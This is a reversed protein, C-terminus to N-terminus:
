TSSREIPARYIDAPVPRNVEGLKKYREWAPLKENLRAFDERPAGGESSRALHRKMASTRFAGYICRGALRRLPTREHIVLLRESAHRWDAASLQTERLFQAGCALRLENEIALPYARKLRELAQEDLGAEGLLCNDKLLRRIEYDELPELLRADAAQAFADEFLEAFNEATVLSVTSSSDAARVAEILDAVTAEPKHIKPNGPLFRFHAGKLISSAVVPAHDPRFWLVDSWTGLEDMENVVGLLGSVPHRLAFLRGDPVEDVYYGGLEEFGADRFAAVRQLSRESKRWQFQPPRRLRLRPHFKNLSAALSYDQWRRFRKKTRWVLLVIGLSLLGLLMALSVLFYTM